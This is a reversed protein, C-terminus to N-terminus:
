DDTKGGFWYMPQATVEVGPLKIDASTLAARARIEAFTQRVLIEGDRFVEVLEDKGDGPLWDDLGITKYHGSIDGKVLKLKGAKSAKEHDSAPDKYVPISEGDVIVNNCKFAFRQTDRHLRQLLGGGQGFAVNDTSWGQRTIAELVLRVGDLDMGDGQILRVKPNLVRYGKDNYEGGFRDYLIELCQPVIEHPVGSDPRIVLINDAGLVEERLMNGWINRCANGIDYSDSVVAYMGPMGTGFQQIMNLYSATEGALIGGGVLRAHALTYGTQTSHEAAPISHGAMPEDYVEACVTLAALTDTGMFNVLHAAGGIGASEVSSVGRFGFDHLKFPRGAPDGTLELYGAIMKSIERSLTCVTSPYWVQVLLTELYNTLWASLPDTNRITMLVNRNPVTTGEPVAKISVPLKGDFQDVIRQWGARNFLTNTGFHAEFVRDAEEINAQTIRRTLYEQLFYQLGFFTTAPFEGGRSEFYAAVESTNPFYQRHHTVKYSDTLLILNEHM